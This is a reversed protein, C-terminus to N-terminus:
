YDRKKTDSHEKLLNQLFNIEQEIEEPTVLEKSIIIKNSKTTIRLKDYSKINLEKRIEKPIVLRGLEDIQRIM